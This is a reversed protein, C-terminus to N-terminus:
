PRSPPIASRPEAAPAKGLGDTRTPNTALAAAHLASRHTTFGRDNEHRAAETPASEPQTAAEALQPQVAVQLDGARHLAATARALKGFAEGRDTAAPLTYVDLAHQFRWGHAELVAGGREVANITDATAAVVGLSPHEAFAIDPENRGNSMWRTSAPEPDLDNDAHVTYGAHRLMDVATTARAQGALHQDSLAYTVESDLVRHFGLRELIWDAGVLQRPNAACIGLEPDRGIVIDPRAHDFTTNDPM